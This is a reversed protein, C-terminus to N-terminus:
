RFDGPGPSKGALRLHARAVLEPRIQRNSAFALLLSEDQMVYDLVSALFGPAAAARRLNSPDLGTVALFRGLREPDEALFGLADIALSDAEPVPDKLAM